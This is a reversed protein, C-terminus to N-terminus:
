DPNGTLRPLQVQGDKPPIQLVKRLKTVIKSSAATICFVLTQYVCPLILVTFSLKLLETSVKLPIFELFLGHNQRSHSDTFLIFKHKLHLSM